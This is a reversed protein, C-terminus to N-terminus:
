DPGTPVPRFWVLRGFEGAILPGTQVGGSRGPALFWYEGASDAVTRRGRTVTVRPPRLDPRSHFSLLPGGGGSPAGAALDWPREHPRAVAGSADAALPVVGAAAAGAARLFQSRTLWPPKAANM